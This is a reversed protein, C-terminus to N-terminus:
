LNPEEAKLKVDKILILDSTAITTQYGDDLDTEEEHIAVELHIKKGAWNRTSAAQLWMRIKTETVELEVYGDKAPDAAKLLVTGDQDVAYVDVGDLDTPDVLTGDENTLTIDMPIDEGTYRIELTM